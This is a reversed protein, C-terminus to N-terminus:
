LGLLVSLPNQSAGTFGGGLSLSDSANGIAGNIANGLGIDGAAKANGYNTLDQGQQTSGVQNIGAINQAGSQLLNNLQGSSQQGIQTAGSLRGYQANQNNLFQNYNQQYNQFANNYTQQYNSAAQGQSYADLAKATGGSDIGGRAAASNQLAEQGQQLQFQYGPTAAAETATPAQFSQNWGQALSGGPALAQQLQTASSAGLSTYPSANQTQQATAGTQAATSSAQNQQSNQQAAQDGAEQAGAASKAAGGQIIGGVIGGLVGM